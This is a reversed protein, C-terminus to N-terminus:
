RLDIELEPITKSIDHKSHRITVGIHFFITMLPVQNMKYVTCITIFNICPKIKPIIEAILNLINLTKHQIKKHFIVM